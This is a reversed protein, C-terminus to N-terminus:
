CEHEWKWECALKWNQFQWGDKNARHSIFINISHDVDLTHFGTLKMHALQDSGNKKQEAAWLRFVSCIFDLLQNVARGWTNVADSQTAFTFPGRQMGLSMREMQPERTKVQYESEEM